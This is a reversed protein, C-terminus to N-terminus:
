RQGKREKTRAQTGEGERRAEGERRGEDEKIQAGKMGEERHEESIM